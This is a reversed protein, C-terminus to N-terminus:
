LNEGLINTIYTHVTRGYENWLVDVTITRLGPDPNDMPSLMVIRTFISNEENIVVPDGATDGCCTAALNALGGGASDRDRYAMEISEKALYVSQVKHVSFSSNTLGARIAVIMGSILMLSMALAFILEALAQGSRFTGSGIRDSLTHSVFRLTTSCINM